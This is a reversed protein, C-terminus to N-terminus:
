PKLVSRAHSVISKSFAETIETQLEHTQWYLQLEFPKDPLLDVLRGEELDQTISVEPLLAFALGNRAFDVIGEASPVLQICPQGKRYAKFLNKLYDKQMEDKEGFIAAPANLLTKANGL